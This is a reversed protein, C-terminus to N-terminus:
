GQDVDILVTGAPYDVGGRRCPETTAKVGQVQTYIGEWTGAVMADPPYKKLEEILQGVTAIM